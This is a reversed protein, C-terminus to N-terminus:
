LQVDRPLSYGAFIRVCCSGPTGFTKVINKAVQCVFSSGGQGGAGGVYGAGGGAYDWWLGAVGGELPEGERPKAVAQYSKGSIPPQLDKASPCATAEESHRATHPEAADVAEGLNAMHGNAKGSAGGGGGAVLLLRDGGGDKSLFLVYSGDGGDGGSVSIRGPRRCKGASVHLQDGSNLSFAGGVVAGRGGIYYGDLTQRGSGDEGRALIFYWGTSPVTWTGSGGQNWQGIVQGGVGSLRAGIKSVAGMIHKSLLTSRKFTSSSTLQAISELSFTSFDCQLLVEVGFKSRQTPQQAVWREVAMVFQFDMRSPKCFSLGDQKKAASVLAGMEPETLQLWGEADQNINALIYDTVRDQVVEVSYAVSLQLLGWCSNSDVQLREAVHKNCLTLLDSVYFRDAIAILPIISVDDVEVTGTYMFKLMAELATPDVEEITISGEQCEAMGSELM